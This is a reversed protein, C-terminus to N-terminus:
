EPQSNGVAALLARVERPDPAPWSGAPASPVPGADVGALPRTAGHQGSTVWQKASAHVEHAGTLDLLEAVNGSNVGAGTVVAAGPPAAAVLRAIVAAGALATAAGGSTLVRAAGLEFATMAAVFPDTAVDVARHFTVPTDGALRLLRRTLGVDVSGAQDLCGLVLGAAGLDRAMAIDSAMVDAERSSYVFGGGRPRIMVMVPAGFGAAAKVAARITGAGPTTGGELYNDCLEIRDAGGELALWTAEISTAMIEVTVRLAVPLDTTTGKPGEPHSM